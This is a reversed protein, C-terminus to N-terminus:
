TRRTKTQSSDMKHQLSDSWKTDVAKIKRDMMTELRLMISGLDRLSAEWMEQQEKAIHDMVGAVADISSPNTKSSVGDTNM